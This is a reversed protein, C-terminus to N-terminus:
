RIYMFENSSLMVQCYQQWRAPQAGEPKPGNLFAKALHQERDTPERGYLLWHARAIRSPMDPVDKELRKSLARARDLMFRSNMMFLFQQPVVNVTRKAASARPIPFDFLRLFQDSALPANRSVKAYITRRTSAAINEVPMGGMRLDLEGTVALLSDRWTEVDM